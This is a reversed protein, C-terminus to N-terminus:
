FHNSLELGFNESINALLFNREDSPLKDLNNIWRQSKRKIRERERFDAGIYSYDHKIHEGPIFNCWLAETRVGKRTMSNFTFLHWKDKNLLKTYLESEYGSIMVFCNLSDLLELLEIHDNNDYEHKYLAKKNKRTEFVYPPDAYVLEYGKFDYNTLFNICNDNIFEHAGDDNKSISYKFKKLEATDIEIAINCSAKKKKLLISGGGLHTEIYVRHKPMKNIIQQHVGSAGKGGNYNM